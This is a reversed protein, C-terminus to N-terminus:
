TMQVDALLELAEFDSAIISPSITTGVSFVNNSECEGSQLPMVDWARCPCHAVLLVPQTCLSPQCAILLCTLCM